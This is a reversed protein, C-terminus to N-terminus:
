PGLAQSVRARLAAVDAFLRELRGAADAITSLAESVTEDAGTAAAMELGLQANGSIVALPNNLAHAVRGLEGRIAELAERLDADSPSPDALLTAVDDLREVSEIRTALGLVDRLAAIAEAGEVDPGVVVLDFATGALYARAEKASAATALDGDLDAQASLWRDAEPHVLLATPM